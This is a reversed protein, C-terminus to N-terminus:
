FMDYYSVRLYSHTEIKILKNILEKKATKPLNKSLIKILTYISSYLTTFTVVVVFIHSRELLEKSNSNIALIKSANAEGKILYLQKRNFFTM